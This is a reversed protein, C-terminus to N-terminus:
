PWRPTSVSRKPGMFGTPRVIRAGARHRVGDHLQTLVVEGAIVEAEHAKLGLEFPALLRAHQTQNGAELLGLERAEPDDM